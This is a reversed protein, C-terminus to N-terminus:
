AADSTQNESWELALISDYRVLVLRDHGLRLTIGSDDYSIIVGEIREGNPMHVSILRQESIFKRIHFFLRLHEIAATMRRGGEQKIPM